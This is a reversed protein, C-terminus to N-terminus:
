SLNQRRIAAEARAVREASLALLLICAGFVARGRNNSQNITMRANEEDQTLEKSGAVGKQVVGALEASAMIM